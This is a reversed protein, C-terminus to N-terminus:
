KAKRFVLVALGNRGFSVKCGDTEAPGLVSSEALEYGPVSIVAEATERDPNTAVIAMEDGNTFSRAQIDDGSISFGLVDNYTGELLLRSYKRKIANARTLYDKYIPTKDILDRCRYIEIDNVIGKMLYMNVRREVDTDDRLERDSFVIEPFTYRFLDQFSDPGYNGPYCHIYDCFQATYDTLWETGLAFEPDIGNIHDRIQKLAQGKDYIVRINPVPYERSLDWDTQKDEAYGLQDYFVSNAGCRYARDAMEILMERWLSDRTDSIHFTRADYEGLWTGMSTFKYHATLEAGTNDRYCNAKGSKYFRSERDVLKGNYYMMLKGGDAKFRAIAESWGKDGGQSDDPSYDPNGNDMGEKWWGFALVADTGVEKGVNQIRGYLDTYKFFYEGYQHKFIIRQWGTMQKVWQPTERHDWWTDAWARYLKAAHHWTGSYPAVVNADCTWTEGCFCHPYKYFGCELGNFEGKDDPYLRLGHWTDQFQTDHSGFYLGQSDGALIFCNMSVGSPYKVDMQRFYQAPTMYPKTNSKAYITGIPDSYRMGGTEATILCHDEPLNMRGVLPYQLERVVVHEENNSIESAFRVAEGDPFIKLTLSIDLLGAEGALRGYHITIAKGDLSVEPNQGEGTIEIEKRDPSDYYMRWLFDGGAYNHGTAVNTLGTLRGDQSVSVMVHGNGASINEPRAKDGAPSASSALGASLLLGLAIPISFAFTKM